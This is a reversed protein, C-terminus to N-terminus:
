QDTVCIYTYQYTSLLCYCIDKGQGGGYPFWFPPVVHCIEEPRISSGPSFLVEFSRRAEGAERGTQTAFIAATQCNPRCCVCLCTGKCVPTLARQIKCLYVCVRKRWVGSCGIKWGFCLCVCVFSMTYGKDLGQCSGLNQCSKLACALTNVNPRFLNQKACLIQPHPRQLEPAERKKQAVYCIASPSFSELRQLYPVTQINWKCSADMGKSDSSRGFHFCTYTHPVM